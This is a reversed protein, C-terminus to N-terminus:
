NKVVFICSTLNKQSEYGFEKKELSKYRSNCLAIILQNDLQFYKEMNPMFLLYHRAQM